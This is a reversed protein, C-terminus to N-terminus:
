KAGMLSDNVDACIGRVTIRVFLTQKILAFQDLWHLFLDMFMVMM